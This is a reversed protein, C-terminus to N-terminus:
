IQDRGTYLLVIDRICFIAMCFAAIPVCSYVLHLPFQNVPSTLMQATPMYIYAGYLVTAFFVLQILYSISLVFRRSTGALADILNAIWVHGHEEYLLITGFLITWVLLYRSVEESWAMSYGIFFRSFVQATVLLILISFSVTLLASLIKHFWQGFWKLLQMKQERRELPLLLWGQLTILSAAKV